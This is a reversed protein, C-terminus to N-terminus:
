MKPYMDKRDRNAKWWAFLIPYYDRIRPCAIGTGELMRRTNADDFSGVHNVYTMSDPPVGLSKFVWGFRTALLDVLWTPVTIRPRKCAVVEWIEEFMERSTPPDHDVVHFCSGVAEPSRTIATVADVLFDIPIFNPRTEGKGLIMPPLKYKSQLDFVRFMIYINDFKDTEGTRSDGLVGAPRIIIAPLGEQMARRVEMEGWFKTMFYNNILKQGADLEDEYILGEREAHVVVSSFHVLHDLNTCAKCFDVMHRTGWYNVKRAVGEPIFLDFAGALHWAETAWGALSRYDSECLGLDSAIVDGAVARLNGRGAKGEAELEAIDEEARGLFKEQVLFTFKVDPDDALISRVQWRGIFGPYGTFFLKRDAM